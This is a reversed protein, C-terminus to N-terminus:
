GAFADTQGREEHQSVQLLFATLKGIPYLFRHLLLLRKTGGRSVDGAAFLSSFRINECAICIQVLQLYPKSKNQQKLNKYGM